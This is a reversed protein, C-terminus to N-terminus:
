CIKRRDRGVKRAYDNGYEDTRWEYREVIQWCELGVVRSEEHDYSGRHRYDRRNDHRGYDNRCGYGDDHEHSVRRKETRTRSVYRNGFNDVRWTYHEVIEFCEVGIVREEYRDRHDRVPPPFSRREPYPAPMYYAPPAYVVPRPAVYVRPSPNFVAGPWDLYGDALIDIGSLVGLGIAIGPWPNNGRHSYRRPGGAQAPLVSTAILIAACLLVLTKKM